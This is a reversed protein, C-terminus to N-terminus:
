WLLFLEYFNEVFIVSIGLLFLLEISIDELMWKEWIKNLFNRYIEDFNDKTFGFIDYM